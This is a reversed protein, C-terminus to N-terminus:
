PILIHFDVASALADQFINNTLVFLVWIEVWETVAGLTDGTIGGIKRRVYVGAIATGAWVLIVLFIAAFSFLGIVILLAMASAWFIERWGVLETFSGTGGGTRAYPNMKAGYVQSWRGLVPMVLLAFIKIDPSMQVLLVFKLLLAACAAVVGHAGARSDKMIDLMQERPKGSFFGDATDMLGDLHMNGTIVILFIISLLDGVGAAFFFSTFYNVLAAGVGIILGVLPYFAM